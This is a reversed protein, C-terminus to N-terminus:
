LTNERKSSISVNNGHQKNSNKYIYCQQKEVFLFEFSRFLSSDRFNKIPRDFDISPLFLLCQQSSNKARTWTIRYNQDNVRTLTLNPIEIVYRSFALRARLFLQSVGDVKFSITCSSSIKKRKRTSMLKKSNLWKTSTSEEIYPTSFLPVQFFLRRAQTRIVVLTTVFHIEVNTKVM